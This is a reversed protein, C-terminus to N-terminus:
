FLKQLHTIIIPLFGCWWWYWVVAVVGGGGCRTGNCYPCNWAVYSASKQYAIKSSSIHFVVEINKEYPLRGWNKREWISSSRIIKKFQLREWNKGLQFNVEIQKWVSSLRLTKKRVHFVIENKKLYSSRLIKWISSSRFFIEM